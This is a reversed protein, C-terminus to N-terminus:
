ELIPTFPVMCCWHLGFANVLTFSTQLWNSTLRFGTPQLNLKPTFSGKTMPSLKLEITGAVFPKMQSNKGVNILKASVTLKLSLHVTNQSFNMKFPVICSLDFLLILLLTVYYGLSM